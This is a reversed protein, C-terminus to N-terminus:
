DGEGDTSAAALAAMGEAVFLDRDMGAPLHRARLFGELTEPLTAPSSGPAGVGVLRARREPARLDLLFDLAAAKWQRIAGHDLERAVARPVERVVQRVVAGDIGGPVAEVAEA